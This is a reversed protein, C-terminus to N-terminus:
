HSVYKGWYLLRSSVNAKPDKRKAMSIDVQKDRGDVELIPTILTIANERIAKIFPSEDVAVRYALEMLMEVSGTEGSHMGGTAWYMPKAQKLLSQAEADTLSRPDALKAAIAKYTDVTWDRGEETKGIDFVKGRPTAM